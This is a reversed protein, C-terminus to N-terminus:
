ITYKLIKNLAESDGKVAREGLTQMDRIQEDLTFASFTSFNKVSQIENLCLIDNDVETYFSTMNIKYLSKQTKESTLFTIFERAIEGKLEDLSTVSIYQILDNFKTLPYSEFEMGRNTLRVLDRQTGIMYPTKGNTFEIYADMPAKVSFESIKIGELALACLPNTYEGQSIVAKEIVGEGSYKSAIKSNSIIVYGGRCWPSAYSKDGVKGGSFDLKDDKLEVQNKVGVGLGYSILDPYIGENMNQEASTKTHNTVMVLVGENNKEFERSVSLLFQKRSGSGGEFSDIQWLSIVGQYKATSGVPKGESIKVKGYFLTFVLCFILIAGSFYRIIKM